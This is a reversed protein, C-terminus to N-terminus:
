WRCFPCSSSASFMCLRLTQASQSGTRERVIGYVEQLGGRAQWVGRPVVGTLGLVDWHHRIAGWPAGWSRWPRGLSEGLAGWPPGHTGLSGELPRMSGGLVREPLRVSGWPGGHVQWVEWFVKCPGGLSGM